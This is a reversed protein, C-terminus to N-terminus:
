MTTTTQTMDLKEMNLLSQKQNFFPPFFKTTKKKKKNEHKFLM